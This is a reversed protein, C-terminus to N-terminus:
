NLIKTESETLELNLNPIEEIYHAPKPRNDIIFSSDRKQPEDKIPSVGGLDKKLDIVIKKKRNSNM